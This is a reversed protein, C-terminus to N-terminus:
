GWAHTAKGRAGDREWARRMAAGSPPARGTARQRAARPRADDINGRGGSKQPELEIAAKTRRRRRACKNEQPPRKRPGARAAANEAAGLREKEGKKTLKSEFDLTFGGKGGKAGVLEM